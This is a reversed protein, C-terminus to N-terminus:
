SEGAEQSTEQENPNPNPSPSPNSAARAQKKAQRKSTPDAPAAAKAPVPPASAKGMRWSGPGGLADVAVGTFHPLGMLTMCCFMTWDTIYGCGWRTLIRPM